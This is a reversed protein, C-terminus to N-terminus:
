KTYKRYLRLLCTRVLVYMYIYMCVIASIRRLILELFWMLSSHDSGQLPGNVKEHGDFNHFTTLHGNRDGEFGAKM